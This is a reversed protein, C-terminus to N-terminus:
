RRFVHEGVGKFTGSTRTASAVQAADWRFGLGELFSRMELHEGLAPNLEVIMSRVKGRRLTREMGRVVSHEFGDVDIKVFDPEAIHGAEVLDDFRFAISGQTFAATRAQLDFGVERGFSHCSGGPMVSSLYLRDLTAREALAACFAVVKTDLGNLGINRNLLAYNESEPEFAFVRAERALAAFVTYMGVNAGVDALVSGKPMARLWEITIPEKDYLSRARWRTMDNPTYFRATRGELEITTLYDAVAGDAPTRESGRVSEKVSGNAIEAAHLEWKLDPRQAIRARIKEEWWDPSRVTIHANEGNPLSKRAPFCAVNLYVVRRAYGIIEDLIWSLDDEPCHELVDTSVVADFKGQPLASYPGYGPDYCEVEVDWYEAIGDAVHQGDVVIKQPRYQTGKGSGYDLVTKAGTAEILQKVRTIHPALSSGPFTREPPIGLRREGEKHMRAYLELLQRYRPSPNARSFAM